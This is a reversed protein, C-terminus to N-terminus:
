KWRKRAYEVIKRLDDIGTTRAGERIYLIKKQKKLMLVPEDAPRVDVRCIEKDDVQPFTTRFFQRFMGQVQSNFKQTLSRDFTDSSPEHHFCSYDRELGLIEGDNGVGILLVGGDSNMFACITKIVPDYLESNKGQLNYDWLMSSKFEIFQSEGMEILEEVTARQVRELSPARPRTYLYLAACLVALAVSWEIVRYVVMQLRTTPLFSKPVRIIYGNTTGLYLHGRDYGPILISELVEPYRGMTLEERSIMPTVSQANDDLDIYALGLATVVYLRKLDVDIDIANVVRSPLGDDSTLRSRVLTASTGNEDFIFLGENTGIYIRHTLQYYDICSVSLPNGVDDQIHSFNVGTRLNFFAFGRGTGALLCDGRVKLSRVNNSPLGNETTINRTQYTSPAYEVVGIQESGLYLVTDSGNRFTEIDRFEVDEGINPIRIPDFVVRQNEYSWHMWYAGGDPGDTVVYSLWRDWTTGMDYVRSGGTASDVSHPGSVSNNSLNVYYLGGIGNFAIMSEAADLFIMPRISYGPFGNDVHTWQLDESAPQVLWRDVSATAPFVVMFVIVLRLFRKDSRLEGLKAFVGGQAKTRGM